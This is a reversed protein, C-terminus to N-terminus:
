RTEINKYNFREPLLNRNQSISDSIAKILDANSITQPLERLPVIDGFKRKFKRLASILESNLEIM